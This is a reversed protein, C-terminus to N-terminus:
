PQQIKTMIYPSYHGTSDPALLTRTWTDMVGVGSGVSKYRHNIANLYVGICLAILLVTITVFRITKKKDM